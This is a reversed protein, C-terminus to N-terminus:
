RLRPATEGKFAEDSLGPARPTPGTDEPVWSPHAPLLAEIAERLAKWGVTSDMRTGLQAEAMKVAARYLEAAVKAPITQVRNKIAEQLFEVRAAQTYDGEEILVKKAANLDAEIRADYAARAEAAHFRSLGDSVRILVEMIKPNRVPSLVDRSFKEAALMRNRAEPSLSELVADREYKSMNNLLIGNGISKLLNEATNPEKFDVAGTEFYILAAEEMAQLDNNVTARLFNNAAVSQETRSKSILDGSTRSIDLRNLAQRIDASALYYRTLEPDVVRIPLMASLVTQWGTYNPAPQDGFIPQVLRVGTM